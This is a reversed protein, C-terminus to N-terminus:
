TRISFVEGYRLIFSQCDEWFVKAVLLSSCTRFSCVIRIIGDVLFALAFTSKGAGPPGTIGIRVAKGTKQYLKALLDRYGNERNEIHSIIKSLSRLDGKLFKDLVTM